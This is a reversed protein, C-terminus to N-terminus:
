IRGEREARDERDKNPRLVVVRCREPQSQGMLEGGTCARKKTSMTATTTATTTTDRGDCGRLEYRFYCAVCSDYEGKNKAASDRPAM